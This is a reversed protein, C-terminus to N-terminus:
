CAHIWARAERRLRAGFVLLFLVWTVFGIVGVMTAPDGEAGAQVPVSAAIMVAAGAPGVIRFWRPVLGSGVAALSFGALALGLAIKNFAM